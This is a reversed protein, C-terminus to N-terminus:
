YENKMAKKVVRAEEESFQHKGAKAGTVPKAFVRTGSRSHLSTLVVGDGNSDLIAWSFSQDGGTDQYPNYRILEMRQIHTLMDKEVGTLRKGLEKDQQNLNFMQKLIEEFRRRIDREGSKPFFSSLLRREKWVFITLVVLWLFVAVVLLGLGVESYM